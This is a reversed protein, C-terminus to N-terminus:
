VFRKDVRGQLGHPLKILFELKTKSYFSVHLEGGHAGEIIERCIFLGLGTGSAILERANTGRYGIEFLDGLEAKDPMSKPESIVRVM